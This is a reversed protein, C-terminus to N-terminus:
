LVLTSIACDFSADPFDLNEGDGKVVTISVASSKAAEYAGKLMGEDPEVAVVETISGNAPYFPFNFGAGCGVELVRGSALGALVQRHKGLARRDCGGLRRYIWSFVPHSIESGKLHSRRFLALM